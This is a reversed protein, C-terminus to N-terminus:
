GKHLYEYVRQAISLSIGQVRSIEEVGAREVQRLGGFHRLLARRRTAGIGPIGQLASTTRARGRRGRHGTIAFRHAEDRIQQILHLAPARPHIALPTRRESVYLREHGPRRDHGKAVGVVCVSGLSLENMVNTAVNLQGRGGDVLVIDPVVMEGEDRSRFRRRLMEQMM